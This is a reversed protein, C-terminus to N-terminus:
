NDQNHIGSWGRAIATSSRSSTPMKHKFCQESKSCLPSFLMSVNKILLRFDRCLPIKWSSCFSLIEATTAATKRGQAAPLPHQPPCCRPFISSFVICFSFTMQKPGILIDSQGVIFLKKAAARHPPRCNICDICNNTNIVETTMWNLANKINIDRINWNQKNCQAWCVCRLCM